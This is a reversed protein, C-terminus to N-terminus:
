HIMDKSHMKALAKLKISNPKTQKKCEAAM